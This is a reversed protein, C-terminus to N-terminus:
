CIEGRVVLLRLLCELEEIMKRFLFIVGGPRLRVMRPGVLKVLKDRLVVLVQVVGVMLCLLYVLLAVRVEVDM